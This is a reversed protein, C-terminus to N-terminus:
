GRLIDAHKVMKTFSYLDSYLIRAPRYKFNIERYKMGAHIDDPDSCITFVLEELYDPFLM